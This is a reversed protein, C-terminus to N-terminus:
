EDQNELVQQWEEDGMVDDITQPNPAIYEIICDYDAVQWTPRIGAMKESLPKNMPAPTDFLAYEIIGHKKFTPIAKPLHVEVLWKMFAEHTKGEKRYHTITFKIPKNEQQKTTESM